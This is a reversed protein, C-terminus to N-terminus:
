EKGCVNSAIEAIKEGLSEATEDRHVPFRLIERGGLYVHMSPLRAIAQRDAVDILSKVDAEALVVSIPEGPARSVTGTGKESVQTSAQLLTEGAALPAATFARRRPNPTTSSAQLNKHQRGALRELISVAHESEPTWIGHFLVAM